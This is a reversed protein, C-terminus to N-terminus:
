FKYYLSALVNGAVVKFSSWTDSGNVFIKDIPMQNYTMGYDDSEIGPMKYPVDELTKDRVDTFSAVDMAVTHGLEGEYTTIMSQACLYRYGVTSGYSGHGFAYVQVDFRFAM